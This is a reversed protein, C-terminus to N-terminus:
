YRLYTVPKLIAQHKRLSILANCIFSRVSSSNKFLRHPSPVSSSYPKRVPGGPEMPQRFENRPILAPAGYVNLLVPEPLPLQLAVTNLIYTCKLIFFHHGKRRAALIQDKVYEPGLYNTGLVPDGSLYLSSHNEM